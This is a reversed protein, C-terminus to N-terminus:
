ILLKTLLSIKHCSFNTSCITSIIFKNQNHVQQLSAGNYEFFYIRGVVNFLHKHSAEKVNFKINTQHKYIHNQIEM